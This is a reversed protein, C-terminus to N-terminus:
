SHKMRLVVLSGLGLLAITAPEPIPTQTLTFTYSSDDPISIDFQLTVVQGPAVEQPAWFEITWADPYLIQTFKTSGASSAVFTAEGAPDLTLIYGTWTFDTENTATTTVTFTSHAEASITVDLPDGTAVGQSIVAGSPSWNAVSDTDFSVLEAQAVSGFILSIGVLLLHVQRESM